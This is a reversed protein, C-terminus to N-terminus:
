RGANDFNDLVQWIEPLYDKIDIGKALDQAVIFNRYNDLSISSTSLSEKFLDNTLLKKLEVPMAGLSLWTPYSVTNYNYRLKKQEFWDITQQHYLINLSSITYSVSINKTIQQFQELNEVLTSWKAPWRMYEFVPGIGDISVCINLDTFKSLLDLYQQKLKISGNTVLSIFCDTNRHEVLKELIKFTNPDFFPEGGLLTIRRATAYDIELNDADTSFFKYPIKGM